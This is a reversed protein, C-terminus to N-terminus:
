DKLVDRALHRTKKVNSSHLWFWKLSSSCVTADLYRLLQILVGNGSIAVSNSFLVCNDFKFKSLRSINLHTSITMNGKSTTTVSVNLSNLHTHITKVHNHHYSM